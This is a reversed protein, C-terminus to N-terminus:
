AANRERVWFMPGNYNSVGVEYASKLFPKVELPAEIGWSVDEFPYPFPSNKNPNPTHVYLADDESNEPVFLIWVNSPTEWCRTQALAKEFVKFLAQLYLTRAEPSSSGKGEWDVHMHWLDYWASASVDLQFKEAQELPSMAQPM